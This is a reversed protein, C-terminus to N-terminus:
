RGIVRKRGVFRELMHKEVTGMKEGEKVGDFPVLRCELNSDFFFPLIYHHTTGTQAEVRHLSSKYLGRTWKGLMDAVNVVYADRNPPVSNWQGQYKVHLGPKDDQFLM